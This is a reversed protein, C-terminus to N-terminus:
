PRWEERYDPHSAYPLALLKVLHDGGIAWPEDNAVLRSTGKGTAGVLCELLQRKAKVEALVRAPSWRYVHAGVTMINTADTEAELYFGGPEATMQRAVSEDEDLRARVFAILDDSV